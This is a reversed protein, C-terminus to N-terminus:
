VGIDPKSTRSTSQIKGEVMVSLLLFDLDSCYVELGPSIFPGDVGYNGTLTSDSGFAAPIVSEGAVVSSTKSGNLDKPYATDVPTLSEGEFALARFRNDKNSDTSPPGSVTAFSASLTEMHKSRHYDMPAFKQSEAQMGLCHGIWRFYVPSVVIRSDDPLSQLSTGEVTIIAQNSGTGTATHTDETTLEEIDERTINLIKAKTGILSETTSDLVYLYSGIWSNSILSGDTNDITLVTNSGSVSPTGSTKFRTDGSGDMLTIRTSDNFGLGSGSIKREYRYDHVYIRPLFGQLDSPPNQLFFAREVLDSNYNSLDSPWSGKKLSSFAMDKLISTKSSNFWLCLVEEKTPHLWFMVSSTPDLACQVSSLDVPWEKQLHNDFAKIDDLRGQSTVAKIGKPTMFYISSGVAELADPGTIGFGEHMEMLRMYGGSGGAEKRINYVRDRSFGFVSDGVNKLAVMENSPLSPVYRNMPAFLEPSRESMSSWRLEGIGRFIDKSDIEDPTSAPTNRIQSMLLTNGYWEMKGGYPIEKDFVPSETSFTPRYILELDELHYTYVARSHNEPQKAITRFDKLRVIKDLGMVGGSFTGGAAETKVSRYFYAYDYKTHDYIIEVSAYKNPYVLDEGSAVDLFDDKTTQVIESLASTRGTRSDFLNYAFVYSGAQLQKADKVGSFDDESYGCVAERIQFTFTSTATQLTPCCISRVRVRLQYDGPAFHDCEFFQALNTHVIYCTKGTFGDALQKNEEVFFAEQRADENNYVAYFGGKNNPVFQYVDASSKQNLALHGREVVQVFDGYSTDTLEKRRVEIDVVLNKIPSQDVYTTLEDLPNIIEDTTDTVVDVLDEQAFIFNQVIPLQNVYNGQEITDQDFICYSTDALGGGPLKNGGYNSGIWTVNESLPLCWPDDGSTTDGDTGGYEFDCDLQDYPHLANWGSQIEAITQQFMRSFSGNFSDKSIVKGGTFYEGSSLRKGSLKLQASGPRAVDNPVVASLDISDDSLFRAPGSFSPKLGPGPETEIILYFKELCTKSTESSSTETSVDTSGGTFATQGSDNITTVTVCTTSVTDSDNYPAPITIVTNGAVGPVRQRVLMKREELKYPLLKTTEKVATLVSIFRDMQKKINNATQIGVVYQGFDDVEGSVSDTSTDFKFEFEQLDTNRMALCFNNPILGGEDFRLPVGTTADEFNEYVNIKQNGAGGGTTNTFLVVGASSNATVTFRSNSSATAAGGTFTAPVSGTVNDNFAGGVAVTTQGTATTTISRVVQQIKITGSSPSSVTFVTGNAAPDTGDYFYATAPMSPCATRFDANTTIQTETHRGKNVQKIKVAAYGDGEVYTATLTTSHGNDSNIALALNRAATNVDTGVFFRVNTGGDVIAGPPTETTVAQYRKTINSDAATAGAGLLQITSGNAPVSTFVIDREAQKDVSNHGYKSNIAATLNTVAEAASTGVYFQVNGGATLQGTAGADSVGKYLISTGGSDANGSILAITGDVKAAGSFAFQLSALGDASNHGNASDVAAKLNTAAATAMTADSDALTFTAGPNVSCDDNWGGGTTITTMGDKGYTKQTVTVKGTGATWTATIGDANHGISNNIANTLVQATDNQDGTAVRNFLIVKGGGTFRSPLTSCSNKFYTSTAITTNGDGAVNQTLSLTSEGVGIAAVLISGNHGNSSLIANRLSNASGNADTGVQFRINGSGDVGTGQHVGKYTKSTGSTDILTITEGYEVKDSLVITASSAYSSDVSPGAGAAKYTRDIGNSHAVLRITADADLTGTASEFTWTATAQPAGTKFTTYAGLSDTGATGNAVTDDAKYTRTNGDQSAIAIKSGTVAHTNFTFTSRAAEGDVSNAFTFNASAPCKYGSSDSTCSGSKVCLVTTPNEFTNDPLIDTLYFVTAPSGQIAIVILRGTSKVDMLATSSVSSRIKNGKSWVGCSELYFDLFIDAEDVDSGGSFATPTTGAVDDNWDTSVTIATNGEEGATNQTLLITGTGATWTTLITGNHGNSSTIAYSLSQASDNQDGGQLFMQAAERGGTFGAPFPNDTCIDKFKDDATITNNGATGGTVQTITLKAGYRAVTLKSSTHGLSSEIASHLNAATNAANDITYGGGAVESGDFTFGVNGNPLLTGGFGGDGTGTAEYTKTTGDTSTLTITTAGDHEAEISVGEEITFEVTAGIAPTADGVAGGGFSSVARYTKSTGAADILTIDENAAVEDNFTWTATAKVTDRMARYVFGYGYTDFDISFTVPFFDTITSNYSHLPDSTCDLDMVKKFGSFPRLGGQLSGDIGTLEGAYNERVSPLPVRKDQSLEILPYKWNSSIENAM